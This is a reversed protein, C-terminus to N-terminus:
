LEFRRVEKLESCESPNVKTDVPVVNAYCLGVTFSINEDYHRQKLKLRELVKV